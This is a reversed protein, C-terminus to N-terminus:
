AARIETIFDGVESTLQGAQRSLDAAASLVQSAAMGTETAAARVGGVNTTVDHASRATQQVNRAIEASAASQKEVAAAISMSISSVERITGTIGRISGVAEKTASQIQAIQAGIEETAKATQNALSKVESAVVAFGKGAEGARAAEITANLALLNTQGAINSILGVVHGIKEAAEALARVIVDTRQADAVARDTIKSSQSVQRSIESISSTLVEAAAAVTAVGVSAAGAATAVTAAQGNARTATGSMAQATAELEAAGASLKSVFHGIKAELADATATMATRREATAAAQINHETLKRSEALRGVEVSSAEATVISKATRDALWGLASAEFLLIVAHFLVRALDGGNPFVMAPLVFNLVLHHVAIITAGVIIAQLDLLAAVIALMPFFEMHADIQWPHGDLEMVVLAPMACLAAAITARTGATGPSARHAVTAVAAMGAWLLIGLLLPGSNLWGALVIIPVHVWVLGVIVRESALRLHSLQGQGSSRSVAQDFV